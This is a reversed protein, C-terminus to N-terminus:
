VSLKGHAASEHVFGADTNAWPNAVKLLVRLKTARSETHDDAPLLLVHPSPLTLIIVTAEKSSTAQSEHSPQNFVAFQERSPFFTAAFRGHLFLGVIIPRFSISQPHDKQM